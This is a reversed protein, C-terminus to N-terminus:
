LQALIHDFEKNSKTVDDQWSLTGLLPASLLAQLSALNEEYRPMSEQGGNAVWGALPLGDRVIAEASLLAHNLCGLKMNVVLIVPFGLSKALDSLMERDNLPVRWGGAGEILALDNPTLLAGKLYGELRSVTVLRGEDAAAIHPAIAPALVVPNVQEYPLQVSSSTQILLADDNRLVGDVKDAGAAIPKLGLSRLGARGAARLLGTTVYTKGADTDTATVFFKKGM